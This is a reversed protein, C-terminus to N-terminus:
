RTPGRLGGARSLGWSAAGLKGTCGWVPARGGDCLLAVGLSTLPGEGWGVVAEGSSCVVGFPKAKSRPYCDKM